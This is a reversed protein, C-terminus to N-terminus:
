SARETEVDDLAHERTDALHISRGVVVATGLSAVVYAAALALLTIM